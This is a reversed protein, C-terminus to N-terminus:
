TLHDPKPPYVAGTPRFEPLVMGQRGANGTDVGTHGGASNPNGFDEKSFLDGLM